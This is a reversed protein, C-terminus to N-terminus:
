QSSPRNGVSPATSPRPFVGGVVPQAGFRSIPVSQSLSTKQRKRTLPAVAEAALGEPSSSLGAERLPQKQGQLIQQAVHEAFGQCYSGAYQAMSMGGLQRPKGSVPQHEPHGPCQKQVLSRALEPCTSLICTRKRIAVQTVPTKLGFACMDVLVKRPGSVVPRLIPDELM